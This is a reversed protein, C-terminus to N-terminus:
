KLTIYLCPVDEFDHKHIISPQGDLIPIALMQEVTHMSWAQQIRTNAWIGVEVNTQTYSPDLLQILESIKYCHPLFTAEIVRCLDDPITKRSSIHHKVYFLIFQGKTHVYHKYVEYRASSSLILIRQYDKCITYCRITKKSPIEMKGDFAEVAAQSLALEPEKACMADYADISPQLSRMVDDAIKTMAAYDPEYEPSSESWGDSLLLHEDKTIAYQDAASSFQCAAM